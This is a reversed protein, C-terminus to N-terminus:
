KGTNFFLFGIGLENLDGSSLEEQEEKTGGPM